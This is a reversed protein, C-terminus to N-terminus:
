GLCTTENHCVVKQVLVDTAIGFEGCHGRVASRLSSVTVETSEQELGECFGIHIGYERTLVVTGPKRVMQCFTEACPVLARRRNLMDRHVTISYRNRDRSRLDARVDVCM